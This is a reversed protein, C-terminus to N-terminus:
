GSAIAATATPLLPFFAHANEHAYGRAAISLFFVSDWHSFVALVGRVVGGVGTAPSANGGDGDGDGDDDSM